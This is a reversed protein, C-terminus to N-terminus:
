GAAPLGLRHFDEEGTVYGEKGDIKVRLWWQRDVEIADLFEIKSDPRVNVQASPAGASVPQKFLNVTSGKPFDDKRIRRADEVRVQVPYRDASIPQATNHAVGELDLPFYRIVGFHGTWDRVEVEIRKRGGVTKERVPFNSPVADNCSPVIVGSIPVFQGASSFAFFQGDVGTGPASPSFERMILVAKRGGPLEVGAVVIKLEFEGTTPYNRRYIVEGKGDRVTISGDTKPWQVGAAKLEATRVEVAVAKEKATGLKFPGYSRNAWQIDAALFSASGLLLL